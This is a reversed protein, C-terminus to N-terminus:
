LVFKKCDGLAGSVQFSKECACRLLGTADSEGQGLQNTITAAEVCGRADGPYTKIEERCKGAINYKGRTCALTYYEFANKLDNQKRYGFAAQMCSVGGKEPDSCQKKLAKFENESFMPLASVSTRATKASHKAIATGSNANKPDATTGSNQTSNPATNASGSNAKNATDTNPSTAANPLTDTNSASNAGMKPTTGDTKTAEPSTAPAEDGARSRVVKSENECALMALSAGLLFVGFKAM